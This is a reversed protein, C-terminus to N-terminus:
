YAVGSFPCKKKLANCNAPPMCDVTPPCSPDQACGCGCQNEFHTTNEPCEYDILACKKPDTSVYKKWWEKAPDCACAKTTCSVVKPQACTCTNCGDESPFSDGIGYPKGAYVCAPECGMETCSIMGGAECTCTNCGDAAPFSQGPEYHKGGHDCGGACYMLTCGVSGDPSCTCTNCGDGAPFQGPGYTKGNWECTVGGSGGAGGGVGGAGGTGAGDQTTSGGCAGLPLAALGAVLVFVRHSLSTTM